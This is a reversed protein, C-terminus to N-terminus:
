FRDCTCLQLLVDAVRFRDHIMAANLAHDVCKRSTRATLGNCNFLLLLIKTYGNKAAFVAGTYIHKTALAGVNRLTCIARVVATKGEECADVLVPGLHSVHDVLPLNSAELVLELDGSQRRECAIDQLCQEIADNEAGNDDSDIQFLSNPASNLQYEMVRVKDVFTVHRGNNGSHAAFGIHIQLILALVFLSWCCVM